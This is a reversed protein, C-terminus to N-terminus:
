VFLVCVYTCECVFSALIEIHVCEQVCLQVSVCMYKTHQNAIIITWSARWAVPRPVIKAKTMMALNSEQSFPNDFHGSGQIPISCMINRNCGQRM